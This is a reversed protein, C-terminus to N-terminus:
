GDNFEKPTLARDSKPRNLNGDRAPRDSRYADNPPSSAKDLQAMEHRLALRARFLRSKVTGVPIALVDAIRDYAMQDIDRLVLVARLDDQLRNMCGHLYGLMENHQVRLLPQPERTDTLQQRLPTLQDDGFRSGAAANRDDLSTTRRLRQKRLWSFSLNMAIRIMWTSIDAQGRFDGIHEVVKVMADQTIEAADDRQGVMRLVINFLRLQHEQLLQGLAGHDGRRAKEVLQQNSIDPM